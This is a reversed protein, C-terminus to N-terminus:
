SKGKAIREEIYKRVDERKVEGLLEKLERM